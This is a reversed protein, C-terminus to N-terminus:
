PFLLYYHSYTLFLKDEHYPHISNMMRLEEIWDSDIVKQISYPELGLKYYKHGAIAEDNPNGFKYQVFKNFKVTVIKEGCDLYFILFVTHENSLIRPVPAGPNIKFSESIQEIRM